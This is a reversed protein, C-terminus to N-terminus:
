RDFLPRIVDSVIECMSDEPNNRVFTSFAFEEDKSTYSLVEGEVSSHPPLVRWAYGIGTFEIGPVGDRGRSPPTFYWDKAGIKREWRYGLPRSHISSSLYEINEDSDNTLRVKIAIKYGIADEFKQIEEKTLWRQSVVTYKITPKSMLKAGAKNPSLVQLIVFSITVLCALSFKFISVSKRKMM